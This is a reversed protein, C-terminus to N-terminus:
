AFGDFLVGTGGGQKGGGTPKGLQWVRQPPPPGEVAGVRASRARCASDLQAQAQRLLRLVQARYGRSESGCGSLVVFWGGLFAM